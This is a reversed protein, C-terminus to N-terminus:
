NGLMTGTFIGLVIGVHLGSLILGMTALIMHNGRVRIAAAGQGVGLISPLPSSLFALAGLVILGPNTEGALGAAIILFGAVTALWALGGLVLALVAQRFHARVDIPSAENNELARVVCAPCYAQGRWRSWCVSCVYNGCRQCTGVVANHEHAPCRTGLAIGTQGAERHPDRAEEFLPQRCNPCRSGQESPAGALRHSCHACIAM